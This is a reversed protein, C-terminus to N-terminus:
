VSFQFTRSESSLQLDLICLRESLQYGSLQKESLSFEYMQCVYRSLIAVLLTEIM